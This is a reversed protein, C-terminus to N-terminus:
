SLLVTGTDRILASSGDGRGIEELYLEVIVSPGDWWLKSSRDYLLQCTQSQLFQPLIEEIPRQLLGALDEVVMSINMDIAANEKEIPLPTNM